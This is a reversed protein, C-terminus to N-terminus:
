PRSLIQQLDNRLDRTDSASQKRLANAHALRAAEQRLEAALLRQLMAQSELNSAQAQATLISTTGPASIAAQQELGNAVNLMQATGADTVAATKLAGLAMADDVDILNRQAPTAQSPQPVSQYVKAYSVAMVALKTPQRSRLVSELQSPSALRASAVEISHIQAALSSFQTRLQGVFTQTQNIAALPWVAQQEFDRIRTTISRIGGLVQGVGNQLTSTITTLLQIIDAGGQAGLPTVVLWCVVFFIVIRNCSFRKM